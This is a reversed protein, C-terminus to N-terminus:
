VFVFTELLGPDVKDALIKRIGTHRRILDELKRASSPAAAKLQFFIKKAEQIEGLAVLSVAQGYLPAPHRLSIYVKRFEELAETWKGLHAAAVAGLYATEQVLKRDAREWLVPGPETMGARRACSEALDWEEIGALGAALLGLGDPGLKEVPIARLKARVSIDGSLGRAASEALKLWDNDEGAMAHKRAQYLNKTAIFIRIRWYRAARGLENEPLPDHFLREAEPWKGKEILARGHWFRAEPAEMERGAGEFFRLAGDLSGSSAKLVGLREACFLKEEEDDLGQSWAKEYLDKAEELDGREEHKRALSLAASGTGSPDDVLTRYIEEAKEKLGAQNYLDALKHWDETRRPELELAMELSAAASGIDGSAEYCAAILRHAEADDPREALVSKLVEAAFPLAEKDDVSLLARGLGLLTEAKQGWSRSMMGRFAEATEPNELREFPLNRLISPPVDSGRKVLGERVHEVAKGWNGVSFAVFALAYHRDAEEPAESIAKEMLSEAQFDEGSWLASLGQFFTGDRDQSRSSFVQWAKEREGTMYLAKGYLSAERGELGGSLPDIVAAADSWLGAEAYASALAYRKSRDAPDAYMEKKRDEIETEQSPDDGAPDELDVATITKLDWALVKRKSQLRSSMKTKAHDLINRVERANSFDPAGIRNEMIRFLKRSAEDSFELNERAAMYNAIRILELPTYDEFELHYPVRSKLGTVKEFLSDLEAPYGAFIVVLADRYDEMGKLIVELARQGPDSPGDGALTYAEDIFLVGDLASKLVKRSRTETEGPTSGVLRSRDVEVVDGVRLIGYRHFIKGLLRAVTTKGTGPNGRFAFHFSELHLRGLDEKERHRNLWLMAEIRRLERKISWLGILEDIDVGPDRKKRSIEIAM